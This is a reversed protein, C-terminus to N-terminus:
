QDQKRLEYSIDSFNRNVCSVFSYSVGRGINMCHSLFMGLESEIRRFNNNVCSEFSFSLDDGFNSCYQLFLNPVEFEARRFNSNICSTFSYSVKDGFNSCHSPFYAEQESSASVNLITFFLFVITVLASKM